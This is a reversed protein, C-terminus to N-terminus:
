QDQGYREAVWDGTKNLFDERTAGYVEKLVDDLREKGKSMGRAFAPFSARFEPTMLAAVIAFGVGRVEEASVRDGEGLVETAQTPWGQNYKDRALERLKQYYPSRPEVQSALFAGLGYALWRPSKGQAAVASEGLNQALLGALSRDSGSAAEKEEGRRGRPRRRPAAPEEKKGGLPDVVVVYPQAVTLNGSSSVRVDVERNEVTRAFEVFDKRDNFVYLSVKEVWDTAPAGLLRKLHSYQTEMAKVANTARDKPLNSFLVFHESPTIEPKLKPNAQKWRDRGAAEVKQEREKPTMKALQNRRVREPSAAYTEMAAKPDLGGDMRAGAKIWQEIRGIAGESLSNDNGGQPMRPMEEGKVRLVLHSEDPKGPVVVKEKPTGQMLKTFSTLDLKGRALGPRGQKHCSVCNAVLIPAVDHQFSIGTSTSGNKGAETEKSKASAETGKRKKETPGAAGKGTSRRSKKPTASKSRAMRGLRPMEGEDGPLQQDLGQQGAMDQGGPDQAPVRQPGADQARSTPAHGFPLAIPALWAAAFLLRCLVRMRLNILM